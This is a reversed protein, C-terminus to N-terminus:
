KQLKQEVLGVIKWVRFPKLMKRFCIQNMIVSKQFIASSPKNNGAEEVEEEEESKDSIDFAHVLGKTRAKMTPEQPAKAKPHMTLKRIREQMNLKKNFRILINSNSEKHECIPYEAGVCVLIMFSKFREMASALEIM